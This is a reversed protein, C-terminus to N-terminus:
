VPALQLQAGADVVCNVSGGTVCVMDLWPIGEPLVVAVGKSLESGGLARIVADTAGLFAATAQSEDYRYYASATGKNRLMLPIGTEYPMPKRAPTATVAIVSAGKMM